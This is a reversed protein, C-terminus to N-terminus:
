FKRVKPHAETEGVEGLDSYIPERGTVWISYCRNSCVEDRADKVESECVICGNDYTIKITYGKIKFGDDAYAKVKQNHENLFSSCENLSKFSKREAGKFLQVYKVRM